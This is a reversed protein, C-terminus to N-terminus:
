PLQQLRTNNPSTGGINVLIPDRDNAEGVYKVLGDLNVDERRYGSTTNTPTTGGVAVLIVDRDNGSGTYKLEGDGTVNGGWMLMKGGTLKQASTGYTANSPLTFDVLSTAISVAVPDATMVGLHNRHRVTLYYFQGPVGMDLSRVGDTGVIDGDRQILANATALIVTQESNSRLEVRVWDVIADDGTVSLVSPNITEGGSGVQTYGLASYPETLLVLGSSRLQDQMLSNGTSYPGELMARLSISAPRSYKFLEYGIGTQEARCYLGSSLPAIENVNFEPLGAIRLTSAATGDSRWLEDGSGDYRLFYLTGQHTFLGFPYGSGAGPELDAAVYTGANTGDSRFLEYGLAADFGSFYVIGNFEALLGVVGHDIGPRLDKVMSTGGVTGDSKWLEQGTGGVLDTGAFYYLPGVKIMRIPADFNDLFDVPGTGAVSGDTRWYKSVDNQYVSFYVYQDVVPIPLIGVNPEVFATVPYTGSISGDSRWLERGQGTTTVTIIAVGNAVGAFAISSGLGPDFEFLKSTGSSTGDTRWLECGTAPTGASFLLWGGVAVGIKPDSGTPGPEIDLLLGTGAVTGDSAYLESGISPASYSFLLTSGVHGMISPVSNPQQGDFVLNTTANTGSTAWLDAGDIGDDAIFYATGDMEHFQTPDSSANASQANIDKVLTFQATSAARQLVLAFLAILIRTLIQNM